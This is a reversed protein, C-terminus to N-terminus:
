GEIKTFEYIGDANKGGVIRTTKPKALSLAIAEQGQALLRTQEELKFIVEDMQPDMDEEGSETSDEGPSEAEKGTQQKTELM